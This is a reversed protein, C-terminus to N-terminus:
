GNSPLQDNTMPGILGSPGLSFTQCCSSELCPVNESNDKQWDNNVLVDWTNGLNDLCESQDVNAMNVANSYLSGAIVWAQFDNHLDDM